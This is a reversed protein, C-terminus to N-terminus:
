PPKASRGDRLLAHAKLTVRRSPSTGEYDRAHSEPAAPRRLGPEDRADAHRGLVAPHHERAIPDIRLRVVCPPPVLTLPIRDLCRAPETDKDRGRVPGVAFDLDVRLYPQVCSRVLREALRDPRSRQGRARPVDLVAVRRPTDKLDVEAALGIPPVDM